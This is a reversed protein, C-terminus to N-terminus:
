ENGLLSKRQRILRSLEEHTVGLRAATERALSTDAIGRVFKYTQIGDDKTFVRLFDLTDRLGNSGLKKAYDLFHTSIFAVPKVERLLHLVMNFIEEGECPNTGSCLEDLLVVSRPQLDSFLRRIRLLEAGLRGERQDANTREVLTAFLGNAIPLKASEAAVFLGSQGLVQALGIAQLLRTKGGSNPGTVIVISKSENLSISCPVASGGNRLLLPNFLKELSLANDATFEALKVNLGRSAALAAFGFSSLYFELHGMVQLIARLTPALDLYVQIVIRNVMERRDLRIGQWALLLWDRWRLLPSRYFPNRRNEIVEDITLERLRGDAGVRVRLSLEALRGEYDLLAALQRFEDAAQIESGVDHLRRLGSTADAFDSVMLDIAIKAQQLIELRFLTNDLRAGSRSAKFLALLRALDRYLQQTSERLARDAQLERLIGQRFRITKEDIPPRSLTRALFKRHIPFHEGDLDISFCGALLDDLFLEDTFYDDNWTSPTSPAVSVVDDLLAGRDAGLFAMELIEELLAGDATSRPETHLLDPLPIM